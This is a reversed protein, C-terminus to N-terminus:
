DADWKELDDNARFSAAEVQRAIHRASLSRERCLDLLWHATEDNLTGEM